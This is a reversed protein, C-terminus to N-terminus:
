AAAPQTRAGPLPLTAESGKLHFSLHVALAQEVILVLLFLLYVWPFESADPQREKYVEYDDGPSRLAITGRSADKNAKPGELREKAARKLNSESAADVNFAYSRMETQAAAGGETLPFFEFTYVGPRRADAFRFTLQNKSLSLTQEGQDEPAPRAGPKAGEADLDPQPQFKRKVKPQYRTADLQLTLEEGVLRNLDDGESTLYRQLEMIFVPYSWSVPSGSGWDNWNSATGASTLIAVVRGKGLRRAVVLPDGYLVTERFERIDTALGKMKPHAWLGPMSPRAPDDKEGPDNLLVDFARVLNFLYPTGLAATVERRYNKVPEVYKKYEPDTGALADTLEEAQRALEQSRGKYDDISRTNPLVIIEQAQRPEPDWQSRPQAKYYLDIGLFRFASRNPYLSSIMSHEPDRFLIKPQEDKYRREKRKAERDEESLTGTPDIPNFPRDGILVPFLGNYKKFLTDNYFAPKVKDGLFYAVSGGHAVYDKLKDLAKVNKIDPMNLFIIAPYLDLNTRELDEVKIREVEASKAASFAVELHFLDGGPLRSEPGNGDVVLTPVKKRVEIVMDRVNDASLGVPEASIEATVQVFERELRRKREREEPSDNERVEPSPKKKAFVLTFKHETRQMATLKDIPQSGAFDEQGDVRVTLFTKADSPSFNEITATFEIPVGEAAVRTEAKLDVIALNDHSVAVQRTKGRYPGATDILSLHIKGDLLKEVSGTLKEVGAGTAWDGERFDSVLHLIKQGKKVDNFYEQAKAVAEIPDIHLSTPKRSALAAAVDEASRDNLRQDFLVTNLDSLLLVRMQQPSRAQAASKILLKIQEKGEEFANPVNAKEKGRDAMSLTDDLVVLHTAGESSDLAWAKFRSVLFAALLVLLIRLSLLILQEIILRRRNRKQSKLLFEMAAWRIRKFRMRNILHILIPLSVLAGGAAMYWPHLFFEM